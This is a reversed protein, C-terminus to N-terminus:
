QMKVPAASCQPDSSMPGTGARCSVPTLGQCHSRELRRHGGRVRPARVTGESAWEHRLWAKASFLSGFWTGKSQNAKIQGQEVDHLSLRLSSLLEGDTHPISCPPVRMGPKPRLLTTPHPCAEGAVWLVGLKGKCSTVSHPLHGESCLQPDRSSFTGLVGLFM